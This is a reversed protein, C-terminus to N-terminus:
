FKADNVVGEKLFFSSPNKKTGLMKNPFIKFMRFLQLFQVTFEM